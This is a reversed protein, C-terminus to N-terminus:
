FFFPINKGDEFIGDFFGRLCSRSKRFQVSNKFCDLFANLFLTIDPFSFYLLNQKYEDNSVFL